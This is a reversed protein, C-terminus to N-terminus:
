RCKEKWKQKFEAREEESMDMFKQRFQKKAFPSGRHGSKGKGFGGFLIKSLVLLGMAQWYSIPSVGSIVDPLIANWLWMVVAGLGFIMAVFLPGFFFWKKNGNFCKNM